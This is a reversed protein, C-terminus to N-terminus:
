DRWTEEIDSNGLIIVYSFELFCGSQALPSEKKKRSFM